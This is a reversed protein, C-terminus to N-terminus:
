SSSFRTASFAIRLFFDITPFGLQTPVYSIFSLTLPEELESPATLGGEEDFFHLSITLSSLGLKPTELIVSEVMSAFPPSSDTFFPPLNSTFGLSAHALFFM